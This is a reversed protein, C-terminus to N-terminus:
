KVSRQLCPQPLHNSPSLLSAVSSSVASATLAALPPSRWRVVVPVGNVTTQIFTYSKKIPNSTKKAVAEDLSLSAVEGTAAARSVLAAEIATEAPSSSNIGQCMEMLAQPSGPAELGPQKELLDAVLPGCKESKGPELACGFKAAASCIETQVAHTGLTSASHLRAAQDALDPCLDLCGPALDGLMERIVAVESSSDTADFETESSISSVRIAAV